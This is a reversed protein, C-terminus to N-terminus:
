APTRGWAGTFIPAFAAGGVERGEAILRDALTDIQIEAATALGAREIVPLLTRVSEALWRYQAPEDARMLLAESRLQMGTVGAATLADPMRLGMDTPVRAHQFGGQVLNVVWGFLPWPPWPLPTTITLEIFSVLGGPRVLRMLHRVAAAPDPLYMLVMRGVVADFPQNGLADLSITMLDGQVFEVNSVGLTAARGRATELVADARDLGVVHGTGGQVESVLTTVEGTGCGVDLVRMGPELGAAQLIRETLPRIISSQQILRKQEEASHGLVYDGGHGTSSSSNPNTM